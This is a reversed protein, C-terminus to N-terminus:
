TEGCAGHPACQQLVCWACRPPQLRARGQLETARIAATRENWCDETWDWVNGHVNYLGWSQASLQGGCRNCQAVRRFPGGAYTIRGDYNAQDTSITNGWWFATASGARTVFEREAESLLRYRKGHDLLAVRCLGKADHWSVCVVPHRDDQAFGPSRGIASRVKGTNAAAIVSARSGEIPQRCCLLSNAARSPL